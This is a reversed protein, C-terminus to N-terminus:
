EQKSKLKVLEEIYKETNKLQMVGLEINRIFREEKWGTTYEKVYLEKFDKQLARVLKINPQKGNM